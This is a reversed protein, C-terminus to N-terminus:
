IAPLLFLQLLIQLSFLSSQLTLTIRSVVNVRVKNVAGIVGYQVVKSKLYISGDSLNIVEDDATAKVEKQKFGLIEATTERDICSAFKCDLVATFFEPNLRRDFLTLAVLYRQKSNKIFQSDYTAQPLRWFYEVCHEQM